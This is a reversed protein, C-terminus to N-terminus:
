SEPMGALRLGEIMRILTTQVVASSSSISWFPAVARFRKLAQQAREHQGTLALAAIFGAHTLAWENGTALSRDFWDIAAAANGRELEVWGMGTLSWFADPAGPSLRYARAYCDFAADYDREIIYTNAGLNLAIINNPNSALGRRVITTGRPDLEIALMVWGALVQVLPDDRGRELALRALSIGRARTTPEDFIGRAQATPEDFDGFGHLKEVSWAAFAIATAYNPDLAIARELLALAELYQAPEMGYVLPLAKLFLDYAELNEPPKRRARDIEAKRITPEVVGVVSETIADQFAFVDATAGDFKEAWLDAGTEGDVLQATVRLRDGARRVSGELLYRVGLERAAERIDIAKHKYAFTSMRSVVAFSRFRSLATILEDVMGDAFYEQEAIGSLNAFPMVAITAAAPAPPMGPRAPAARVLRYGTRPVTVILADGDAGMAKRLSGIQVTLNAEEVVLGPWARELLTTKSVTAGDADLLAELILYGRHSIPVSQGDRLLAQRERNLVFPGFSRNRDDV